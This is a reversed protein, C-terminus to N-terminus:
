GNEEKSLHFTFDLEMRILRQLEEASDWFISVDFSTINKEPNYSKAEDFKKRLDWVADRIDGKFYPWWTQAFLELKYIREFLWKDDVEITQNHEQVFHFTKLDGIILLVEDYLNMIRDAIMRNRDTYSNLFTKMVELDRSLDSKLMELQKDNASSIWKPILIKLYWLLIPITVYLSVLAIETLKM